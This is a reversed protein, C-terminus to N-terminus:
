DGSQKKEKLSLIYEKFLQNQEKKLALYRFMFIILCIVFAMGTCCVIFYLLSFLIASYM